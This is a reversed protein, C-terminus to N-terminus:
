VHARGIEPGGGTVSALLILVEELTRVGPVPINPVPAATVVPWWREAPPGDGAQNHKGRASGHPVRVGGCAARGRPHEQSLFMLPLVKPIQLPLRLRRSRQGYSLQFMKM